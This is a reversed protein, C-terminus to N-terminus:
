EHPQHKKYQYFAAMLEEFGASRYENKQQHKIHLNETKAFKFHEM